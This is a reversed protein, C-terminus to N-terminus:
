GYQEEDGEAQQQQGGDGGGDDGRDGNGGVAADVEADQAVTGIAAAAVPGHDAVVGTHQRVEEHMAQWQGGGASVSNWSWGLVSKESGALERWAREDMRMTCGM